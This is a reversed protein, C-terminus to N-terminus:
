FDGEDEVAPPIAVALIANEGAHARLFHGCGLKEGLAQAPANYVEKGLTGWLWLAGSTSVAVTHAGGASVAIINQDAAPMAVKGPLAHVADTQDKHTRKDKTRKRGLRGGEANGWTVVLGDSTLAVGHIAACSLRILRTDVSPPMAMWDLTTTDEEADDDWTRGLQRMNDDGCSLGSGSATLIFTSGQACSVDRALEDDPLNVVCPSDREDTDGLGLQGDENCGWSFVRGDETCVVCHEKGCGIGVVSIASPLSKVLAPASSQALWEWLQGQGDLILMVEDGVATHVANISGAAALRTPRSTKAFAVQADSGPALWAYVEGAASVVASANEGASIAVIEQGVLNEVSQWLPSSASGVGAQQAHTRWQFLQRLGAPIEKRTFNLSSDTFGQHSEDGRVDPVAKDSCGDGKTAALHAPTVQDTTAALAAMVPQTDFAASSMNSEERHVSAEQTCSQQQKRVWTLMPETHLLEAATPRTTKDKTLCRSILAVVDQPTDAPLETLLSCPMRPDPLLRPPMRSTYTTNCTM